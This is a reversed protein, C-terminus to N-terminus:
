SAAPPLDLLGHQMAYIVLQQTTRLGLKRRISARHNEVTFRSLRLDHAIGKNSGGAAVLRLIMSERESLLGAGPASGNVKTLGPVRKGAKPPSQDLSLRLLASCVERLTASKPLVGDAGAATAQRIVATVPADTLVLSRRRLGRRGASRLIKRGAPGAPVRDLLVLHPQTRRILPIAADMSGTSAVVTFEPRSNFFYVLAERVATQSEVILLKEPVLLNKPM